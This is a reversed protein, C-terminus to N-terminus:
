KLERARVATRMKKEVAPFLSLQEEGAPGKIWVASETIRSIRGQQYEDGVRYVQGGIVALRGSRSIRIAEIQSTAPQAEASTGAAPIVALNAPRMPDAAGTQEALVPLAWVALLAIFLSKM